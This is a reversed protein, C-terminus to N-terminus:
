STATHQSLEVNKYSIFERTKLSVTDRLTRLAPNRKSIFIYERHNVLSTFHLYAFQNSLQKSESEYNYIDYM